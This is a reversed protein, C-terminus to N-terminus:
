QSKDEAGFAGGTALHQHRPPIYVTDSMILQSYKSAGDSHHKLIEFKEIITGRLLIHGKREFHDARRAAFYATFCPHRKFVHVEM